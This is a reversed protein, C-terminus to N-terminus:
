YNDVNITLCILLDKIFNSLVVYKIKYFMIKINSYNYIILNEIEKSTKEKIDKINLIERHGIICCTYFKRHKM